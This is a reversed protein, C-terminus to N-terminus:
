KPQWLLKLLDQFIFFDVKNRLAKANLTPIAIAGTEDARAASVADELVVCSGLRAGISSFTM